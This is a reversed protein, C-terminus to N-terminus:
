PKDNLALIAHPDSKPLILNVRAPGERVPKAGLARALDTLPFYLEKGMTHLKPTIRGPRQVRLVAGPGAGVTVAELNLGKSLLFQAGGLLTKLADQSVCGQDIGASPDDPAVHTHAWLLHQGNLLVEVKWIQSESQPAAMVVSMCMVVVLPITVVSM